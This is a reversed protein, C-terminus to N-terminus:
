KRLRGLGNDTAIWLNLDDYALGYVHNGPLGDFPCVDPRYEKPNGPWAWGFLAKSSLVGRSPWALSTQGSSRPQGGNVM